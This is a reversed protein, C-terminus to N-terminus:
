TQDMANFLSDRDDLKIGPLWKGSDTRWFLGPDIVQARKGLYHQLAREVLNRVSTCEDAARLQLRRYLEDSFDFSTKM